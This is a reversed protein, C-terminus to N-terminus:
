HDRRQPDRQCGSERARPPVVRAALPERRPLASWTTSPRCCGSTPSGDADTTTLVSTEGGSTSGSLRKISSLHARVTAPLGRQASSFLSILHGIRAHIQDILGDPFAAHGVVDELLQPSTIGHVPVRLRVTRSEPRECKMRVDPGNGFVRRAERAVRRADRPEVHRVRDRKRRISRDHDRLIRRLM